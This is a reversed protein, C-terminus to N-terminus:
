ELPFTLSAKQLAVSGFSAKSSMRRSLFPTDLWTSPPSRSSLPSIMDMATISWASIIYPLTGYMYRLFTDLDSTNIILKRFSSLIVIRDGLHPVRVNIRVHIHRIARAVLTHYMHARAGELVTWM